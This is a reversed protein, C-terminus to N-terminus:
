VFRGQTFCWWCSYPPCKGTQAATSSKVKSTYLLCANVEVVTEDAGMQSAREQTTLAMKDLLSLTLKGESASMSGEIDSFVFVGLPYWRYDSIAQHYIGYSVLIQKTLSAASLLDSEKVSKDLVLTISCTRRIDSSADVPLSGSVTDSEFSRITQGSGNQLEVRMRVDRWKQMLLSIDVQEINYNM